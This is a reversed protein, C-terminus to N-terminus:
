KVLRKMEPTVALRKMSETIEEASLKGEKSDSAGSGSEGAQLAKLRRKLIRLRAMDRRYHTKAIEWIYQGPQVKAIRGDPLKLTDGPFVMDPDKLGRGNRRGIRRFGNRRALINAYAYVEADSAKVNREGPVQSENQVTGPPALTSAEIEAPSNGDPTQSESSFSVRPLSVLRYLFYVGGAMLVLLLLLVIKKLIPNEYFFLPHSEM